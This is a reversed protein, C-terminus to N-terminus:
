DLIIEEGSVGVGERTEGVKRGSLDTLVIENQSDRAFRERVAAALM